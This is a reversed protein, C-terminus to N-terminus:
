LSIATLTTTATYTGPPQLVSGGIGVKFNVTTTAGTPNNASTSLSITENTTSLGDWCALDTNGSSTNCTAGDDRFRQVTDVGQPSYGLHADAIGTTFTFDPNAGSPVYDAISDADKQMAPNQSASITLQYGSSSDTMVTVTTSGNSYGGGLGPITPSLTVASAGSLSIFVEHMQQYGANLNYSTSTSVGTGSEGATSELSFNTSTSLGGGANVSDSEIRYSASQMTQAHVFVMGMFLVPTILLSTITTFLIERM